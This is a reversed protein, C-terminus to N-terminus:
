RNHSHGRTWRRVRSGAVVQWTGGGSGVSRHSRGARPFEGDEGGRTGGPDDQENRQRQRRHNTAGGGTEDTPDPPEIEASSNWGLPGEYGATSENGFTLATLATVNLQDQGAHAGDLPPEYCSELSQQLIFTFVLHILALIFILGLLLWVIHVANSQNMRLFYRQYLMEVQVNKFKHSCIVGNFLCKVTNWCRSTDFVGETTNNINLNNLPELEEQSGYDSRKRFSVVGGGM